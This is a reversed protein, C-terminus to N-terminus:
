LKAEKEVSGTCKHQRLGECFYQIRTMTFGSKSSAQSAYLLMLLLAVDSSFFSIEDRGSYGHYFWDLLLEAQLCAVLM